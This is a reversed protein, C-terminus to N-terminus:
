PRAGRGHWARQGGSSGPVACDGAFYGSRARQWIRDRCRRSDLRHRGARAPGRHRRQRPRDAQPRDAGFELRGFQRRQLARRRDVTKTAAAPDPASTASPRAHFYRDSTFSQGILASGVVAGSKEVLSGNAQRQMTVQAVGTIALPYALGTLAVFLVLMVIAPRLQSLM